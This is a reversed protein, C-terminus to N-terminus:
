KKLIKGLSGTYKDKGCGTFTFNLYRLNRRSFSIALQDRFHISVSYNRGHKSYYRTYYLRQTIILKEVFFFGIKRFFSQM